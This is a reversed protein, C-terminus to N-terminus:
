QGYKRIGNASTPISIAMLIQCSRGAAVRFYRASAPLLLLNTQVWVGVNSACRSWSGPCLEQSRQRRAPLDLASFRFEGALRWREWTPCSERRASILLYKIRNGARGVLGVWM